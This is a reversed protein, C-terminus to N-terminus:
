GEGATSTVRPLRLQEGPPAAAVPKARQRQGRKRRRERAYRERECSRCTRYVSTRSRTNAQDFLHGRGCHAEWVGRLGRLVNEAHTVPEIHSPRCCARVKCMHDPELGEPIPGVLVDYAVRHAQQMRGEWHVHGYGSNNTSATWVWCPLEAPDFM